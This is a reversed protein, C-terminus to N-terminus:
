RAIRLTNGGVVQVAWGQARLAAQFAAADGAFTVRMVSTGGPALSVIIASTVGAARSV